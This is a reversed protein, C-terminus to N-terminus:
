FVGGNLSVSVRFLDEKVYFAPGGGGAVGAAPVSVPYKLFVRSVLKNNVDDKIRLSDVLRVYRPNVLASGLDDVGFCDTLTLSVADRWNSSIRLIDDTVCVVSSGGGAPRLLFQTVKKSGEYERHPLVAMVEDVNIVVGGFGGAGFRDTLTLILNM